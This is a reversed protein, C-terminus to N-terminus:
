IEAVFKRLADVTASLGQRGLTRLFEDVTMPPNKLSQRQRKAAGCVLEPDTVALYMLLSRLPAPYLVCAGYIVTLAKSM